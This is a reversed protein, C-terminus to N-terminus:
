SYILEILIYSIIFIIVRLIISVLVWGGPAWPATYTMEKIYINVYMMSTCQPIIIYSKYNYRRVMNIIRLSFTSLIYM